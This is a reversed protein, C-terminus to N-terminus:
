KKFALYWLLILQGFGPILMLLGLSRPSNRSEALGAGVLYWAVLHIIPIFLGIFLLLSIKAIKFMLYFNVIPIWALWYPKTNTKQALIYLPYGFLFIILFIYIGSGLVEWALESFFSIIFLPFFFLFFSYLVIAPIQKGFVSVKKKYWPKRQILKM